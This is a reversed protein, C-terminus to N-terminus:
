YENATWIWRHLINDKTLNPAYRQWTEIMRDAFEEKVAEIANSDGGPAFPMAHWGYATHHGRHAQSPDFYTIHGTGFSVRSPIKGEAVEHHLDFLQELSERRHQIQAGQERESRVRSLHIAPDGQAGPSHRVADLRD